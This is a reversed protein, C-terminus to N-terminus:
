VLNVTMVTQETKVRRGKRDWQVQLEQIVRSVKYGWAVLNVWHDRFAQLGLREQSM